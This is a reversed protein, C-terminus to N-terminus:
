GLYVDWQKINVAGFAKTFDALSADSRVPGIREGPVIVLDLAPAAIPHPVLGAAFYM